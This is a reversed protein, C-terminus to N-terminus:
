SPNQVTLEPPLMEPKGPLEPEPKKFSLSILNQIEKVNNHFDEFVWNGVDDKDIVDDSAAKLACDLLDVFSDIEKGAINEFETFVAQVNPLGWRESLLRLTKFDLKLTYEKDKITIKM